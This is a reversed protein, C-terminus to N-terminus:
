LRGEAFATIERALIRFVEVSQIKVPSDEIDSIEDASEEIAFGESSANRFQKLSSDGFSWSSINLM